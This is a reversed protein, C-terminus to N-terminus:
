RVFLKGTFRDTGAVVEAAYTGRALSGPDLRYSGTASETRLVEGGAIDLVRLMATGTASWNLVIHDEAYLVQLEGGNLAARMGTSVDIFVTYDETEGWSFDFCPDASTPEGTDPYMCRVRMTSPGLTANNPVTFTVQATQFIANTVWSALMESADWIDDANFDIWAAMLDPQYDGSQVYLEYSSGRGLQTGQSTYDQYTPGGTSGSNENIISNLEVGNVFDGEDTGNISTPVCPGSVTGGCGNSALLSSRVGAVIGNMYAGQDDTFMLSCDAYDMFNEYQTLVGCSTQNTPFCNFTPGDTDPTDSFGDDDICGGNDGWPHELGLYHGAEHTATRSGSGIGYDFDLVLGDDGTGVVGGVPLYSYGTTVGGGTQGSSIDCIWINLYSDPDWAPDGQPNYKMDNTETDPDFWTETTNKRVIGTTPNGNPDTSALCFQIGTNTVVGAFAARVNTVDSNQESYDLNMQAIIGNITGDPINEAAINWVVHVVVPIVPNGGGKPFSTPLHERIVPSLGMAQLRQQTIRHAACDHQQAAASFAFLAALPVTTIRMPDASTEAFNSTSTKFPRWFFSATRRGYPQDPTM